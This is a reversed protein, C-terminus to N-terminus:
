WLLRRTNVAYEVNTGVELVVGGETISFVNNEDGRKFSNLLLRTDVTGTRIVEDQILDLFEMGMADLWQGLQKAFGGNAADDLKKIFEDLGEFQFSM